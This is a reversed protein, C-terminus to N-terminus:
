ENTYADVPIIEFKELNEKIEDALLLALDHPLMGINDLIEDVSYMDSIDKLVEESLYNSTLKM